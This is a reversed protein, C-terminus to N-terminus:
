RPLTLVVQLGGEPTDALTLSGRSARALSMAIALGLGTGPVNASKRWFRRTARDKDEDSLGPGQDSISLMCRDDNHSVRIVITSGTPSVNLANDLTNDLIQEVAGPVAMALVPSEAGEVRLAVGSLEALASWTDTRQLAIQALDIQVSPQAEDARALQLLDSVLTALRSTEEIAAELEDADAGAMRAQLNELRLRLATLPTRLQHSADAVFARQEDLMAALREAMTAMTVSLERLESPGEEGPELPTLDGRAFRHAAQELRRVPRTVSRAIVWGVAAMVALVAFGMLVLGLWFRHVTADVKSTALTIRLAGHVVGGSTVPLAVYVFDSGLTSSYRTGSSRRGALAEAIEPRTSLDRRIPQETDILSIGEANVVVVRAGTRFEYSRAAQPDPTIGNQLDDEYIGAIVYADHEIGGTFREVERQSFFIALPLELLLLVVVTITLYGVLLRKTM